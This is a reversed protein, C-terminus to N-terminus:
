APRRAVAPQAPRSAVALFLAPGTSRPEPPLERFSAGGLGAETLRSALAEPEFGLCQQGMRDRLDERDHPLLDVLVARGAPRLVRTMEALVLAPDSVYSLALILLAADCSADPLPLSELVAQRLEVNDMGAARRRAAKLMAASQDLGFVREV